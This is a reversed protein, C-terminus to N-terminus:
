KSGPIRLQDAYRWLINPSVFADVEHVICMKGTDDSFEFTNVVKASNLAVGGDEKGGVGFLGGSVTREIPVEGGMTIVGGADFLADATVQEAIVHYAAIKEAMERNRDDKLQMLKKDGLAKFADDNPAFVTYGADSDNIAKMVDKIKVLLASCSPFKSAVFEEADSASNQLTTQIRRQSLQRHLYPRQFATSGSLVIVVCNSFFLRGSMM